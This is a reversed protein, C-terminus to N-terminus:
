FQSIFWVANAISIIDFNVLMDVMHWEVLTMSILSIM